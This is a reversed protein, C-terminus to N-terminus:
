SQLKEWIFEREPINAVLNIHGDSIARWLAQRV